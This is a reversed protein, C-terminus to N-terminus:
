PEGAREMIIRHSSCRSKVTTPLALAPYRHRSTCFPCEMHAMGSNDVEVAVHIRGQSDRWSDGPSM